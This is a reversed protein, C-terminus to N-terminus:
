CGAVITRLEANWGQLIILTEKAEVYISVGTILNSQFKWKRKDLWTKVRVYLFNDFNLTDGTYVVKM